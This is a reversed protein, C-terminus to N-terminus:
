RRNLLRALNDELTKVMPDNAGHTVIMVKMAWAYALKAKRDSSWKVEETLSGGGMAIAGSYLDGLTYLQLGLLPHNQVHSFAVALFSVIHECQELAEHFQGNAFLASLYSCQVSYLQGYFPSLWVNGRSTYLATAQQLSQLEGPADGQIMCENAQQQWRRSLQNIHELEPKSLGHCGTMADDIDVKVLRPITEDADNGGHVRFGNKLPWLEWDQRNAPLELFCGGKKCRTCECVFGHTDLLRTQREQTCLALDVYSHCLEEGSLIDKCAVIELLPPHYQQQGVKNTVGFKYRLICNPNCSHNLLAACPYVGEGIPSHLSNVIGFNNKKFADLTRQIALHTTYSVRENNNDSDNKDYGWIGLTAEVKTEPSEKEAHNSSSAGRVAYSEMLEKALAMSSGSSTSTASNYHEPSVMLSSFHRPGCSVVGQQIDAEDQQSEDVGVASDANERLWKLSNFTRLLLPIADEEPSNARFSMSDNSRKRRKVYYQCELKHQENWDDAQLFITPLLNVWDNYSNVLM